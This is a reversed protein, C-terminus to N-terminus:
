HKFLPARIPIEETLASQLHVCQCEHAVCAIYLNCDPNKERHCDSDKNCYERGAQSEMCMESAIILLVLLCAMPLSSIKTTEM